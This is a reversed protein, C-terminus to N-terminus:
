CILVLYWIFYPYINKLKIQKITIYTKYAPLALEKYKLFNGVDRVPQVFGIPLFYVIMETKARPRQVNQM